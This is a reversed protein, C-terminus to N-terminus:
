NVYRIMGQNEEIDVKGLVYLVDLALVLQGIDDFRDKRRDILDSISIMDVDDLILYSIKSLVSEDFRTFKNPFSM